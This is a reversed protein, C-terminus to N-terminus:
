RGYYGEKKMLKDLDEYYYRLLERLDRLREVMQTKTFPFYLNKGNDMCNIDESINKIEQKLDNIGIEIEEIEKSFPKQFYCNRKHSCVNCDNAGSCHCGRLLKKYKERKLCKSGCKDYFNCNRGICIVDYMNIRQNM